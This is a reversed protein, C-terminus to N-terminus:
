RRGKPILDKMPIDLADCLKGLQVLAETIEKSVGARLVEKFMKSPNGSSEELVRIAELEATKSVANVMEAMTRYNQSFGNSLIAALVLGNIESQEIQRDEKM